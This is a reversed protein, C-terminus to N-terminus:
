LPLCSRSHRPGSFPPRRDAQVRIFIFDVVSFQFRRGNSNVAGSGVQLTKPVLEPIATAAIQQIAAVAAFPSADEGDEAELRVM